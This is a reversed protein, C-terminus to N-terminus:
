ELVYLSVDTNLKIQWSHSGCREDISHCGYICTAGYQMLTCTALQGNIVANEALFQKNWVDCFKILWYDFCISTIEVPILLKCEKSINRIYGVVLIDTKIRDGNKDFTFLAM